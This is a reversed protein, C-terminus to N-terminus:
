MSTFSLSPLVTMSSPVFFFPSTYRDPNKLETAILAPALGKARYGVELEAKKQDFLDSARKLFLMGFIFEKYESADMSGRLDDCAAFLLAELRPLTLKGVHRHTPAPEVTVPLSPAVVPEPTPAAEPSLAVPTSADAADVVARKVAGGRGPSKRLRGAIILADRVAAYREDAWGLAACLSQNGIASGDAPVRDFLRQLDAATPVPSEVPIRDPRAFQQLRDRVLSMRSQSSPDGNLHGSIITALDPHTLLEAFFGAIFQQCDIPADTVERPLVPRANTLRIIDELDHSSQPDAAGRSRYAVCKAALMFPPSLMRWQCTPTLQVPIAHAWGAEYWPNTFGLVSGDLPMIDVTIAGRLLWRCIPAGERRDNAFGRARLVNELEYFDGSTTVHLVVDVDRTARPSEEIRETCYFPISAGGTLLCRDKLDGLAQVVVAIEEASPM